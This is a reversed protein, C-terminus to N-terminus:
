PTGGTLGDGDSVDESGPEVDRGIGAGVLVEEAEDEGALLLQELQRLDLPDVRRFVVLDRDGVEIGLELGVLVDIDVEGGLEGLALQRIAGVEEVHEVGDVLISDTGHDCM